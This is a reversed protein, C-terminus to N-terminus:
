EGSPNIVTEIEVAEHLLREFNAVLNFAAALGMARHIAQKIRMIEDRLVQQSLVPTKAIKMTPIYSSEDDRPDSVYFPVLVKRDEYEVIFKVERILQSATREWERQAAKSVDWDFETHLINTPDRAAIVVSKPTIRGRSDRCAAIAAARLELRSKKTQAQLKKESKKAM